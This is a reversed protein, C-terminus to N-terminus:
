NQIIRIQISTHFFYFKSKLSIPSLSIRNVNSVFWNILATQYNRYYIKRCFRDKTPFRKDNKM